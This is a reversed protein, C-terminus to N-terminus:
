EVNSIVKMKKLMGAPVISNANIKVGQLIISGAGVFACEDVIVDGCLIARPAIHVGSGISSGHDISSGTNIISNSGINVDPQIIAGAMIQSGEGLCVSDSVIASPHVISAFQYGKSKFYDFIRHRACQGPLFGIGNVLEVEDPSYELIVQDDGLVPLNMKDSLGNELSTLGIVTNDFQRLVDLCVSAHGGAGLIIIPKSTM